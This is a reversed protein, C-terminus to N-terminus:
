ALIQRIREAVRHAFNYYGITTSHGDLLSGNLYFEKTVNATTGSPWWAYPTIGNDETITKVVYVNDDGVSNVATIIDNECQTFTLEGSGVVDNALLRPGTIVMIANPHVRRFEKIYSVIAPVRQASTFSIDNHNGWVIHLDTDFYELEKLREQYTTATGNSNSIFGTAGRAINCFEDAGLLGAM